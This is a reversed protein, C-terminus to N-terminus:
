ALDSYIGLKFREVEDLAVQYSEEKGVLIYMVTGSWGYLTWTLMYIYRDVARLWSYVVRM